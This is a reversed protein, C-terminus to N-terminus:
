AIAAAFAYGWEALLDGLLPVKQHIAEPAATASSAAWLGLYQRQPYDSQTEIRRFRLCVNATQEQGNSVEKAIKPISTQSRQCWKVGTLATPARRLHSSYVALIHHGPNTYTIESGAPTTQATGPTTKFIPFRVRLAHSGVTGTQNDLM